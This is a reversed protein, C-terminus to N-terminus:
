KEVTIPTRFQPYISNFSVALIVIAAGLISLAGPKEGLLLFVWIPNLIPEIICIISATVSNTVKIGKGFFFYALGLQLTGMLIAAIWPTTGSSIVATDLFLVPILLLSLGCGIINSDEPSADPKKNFFFVGSFTIGSLIALIDGVLAGSGLHDLFFLVIGSFTLLITVADLLKPKKRQSIMVGLLVYIPAAYQFVIANAASTMKNAFMFLLTTLFVCVGAIVSSKTFIIKKKRRLIFLVLTAFIGRVAAISVPNWPIFKSGFGGTSWLLAALFLFLFGNNKNKM